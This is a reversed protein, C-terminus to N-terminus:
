KMQNRTFTFCVCVFVFSHAQMTSLLKAYIFFFFEFNLFHSFAILQAFVFVPVSLLAITDNVLQSCCNRKGCALAPSSLAAVPAADVVIVFRTSTCRFGFKKLSM